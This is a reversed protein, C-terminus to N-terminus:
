WRNLQKSKQFHFNSIIKRRFKLANNTGFKKSAISYDLVMRFVKYLLYYFIFYFRKQGERSTKIFEDSFMYKSM